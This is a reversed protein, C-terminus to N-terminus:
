RPRNSDQRPRRSLWCSASGSRDSFQGDLADRQPGEDGASLKEGNLYSELAKCRARQTLWYRDYAVTTVIATLIAAWEFIIGLFEKYM